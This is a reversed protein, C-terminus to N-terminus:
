IRLLYIMKFTNKVGIARGLIDLWKKYSKAIKTKKFEMDTMKKQKKQLLIMQEDGNVDFVTVRIFCM